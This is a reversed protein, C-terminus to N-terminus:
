NVDSSDSLLPEDSIGSEAKMTVPNKKKQMQVIKDRNKMYILALGAALALLVLASSALILGVIWWHNSGSQDESIELQARIEGGPHDASHINVYLNQTRLYLAQLPTLEATGRIPSRPDEFILLPEANVGRGAPGHVHAGTPDSVSHKIEFEVELTDPDFCACASGDANTTVPPVEQSGQLTGMFMTATTIIQGRIEGNPNANSHVNVYWMGGKLFNVQDETLKQSGKIEGSTSGTDVDLEIVHGAANEGIGAPGHVHAATVGTDIDDYAIDWEFDLDDDLTFSASGEAATDVPPVQQRGSLSATFKIEDAFVPVLFLSVSVLVLFFAGRMDM